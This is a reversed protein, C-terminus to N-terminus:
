NKEGIFLFMNLISFAQNTAKKLIFININETNVKIYFMIYFSSAYAMGFCLGIAAFIGIVKNITVNEREIIERSQPTFPVPDNIVRIGNKPSILARAIANHVLNLTVPAAHYPINNFWATITHNELNGISAGFLYNKEMESLKTNALDIYFAELDTNTTVIKTGTGKSYESVIRFASTISIELSNM